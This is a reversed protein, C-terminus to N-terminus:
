LEHKEVEDIRAARGDRGAPDSREELPDPQPLSSAENFDPFLRTVSDVGFGLDVFAAMIWWLTRLLEDQQERTLEPAEVEERYKDLDLPPIAGAHMNRPPQDVSCGDDDNM